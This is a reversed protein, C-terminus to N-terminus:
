KEALLLAMTTKGSVATGLVVTHGKNELALVDKQAGKIDLAM